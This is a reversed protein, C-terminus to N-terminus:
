HAERCHESCYYFVLGDEGDVDDFAEAKCTSRGCKPCSETLLFDESEWLSGNAFRDLAVMHVFIHGRGSEENDRYDHLEDTWNYEILANIAAQLEALSM